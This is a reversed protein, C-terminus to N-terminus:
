GLVKFAFRLMREQHQIGLETDLFSGAHGSEFWEVEIEKGLEKMKKEFVEVPRSPTRTDNKGQIILIPSKINEVYTIPSSKKYVEPKEEPTGGFIAVQFGRLTDASDEYMIIWDTIAVGAMGGAWLDPYKGLAQLTLYGGYSWGTLLIEDPNAIGEKVLWDRAAVMDEVEWNGLDGHIKQEFDRGFTTSGRYNLTVFAFGHDLWSQSAPSFHNAQVSTPGGHTEFITPFPGDGGPTAVWGQIEQGDGSKVTFSKWDRGAPVQGAELITRVLEGTQGDLAVLRSPHAADSLHGFIQGNPAFYPSTMTGSPTNLKILNESEIDYIYFYQVAKRFERVLLRKGDPSWDFIGASGTIGDLPLDKRDGTRPDWIFPKETGTRTSSGVLREDGALPSFHIFTSDISTDEGDWLESIKEGTNTDFAILSFELKNSKETTAIVATDGDYSILPGGSMAKSHYIERPPSVTGDAAIDCIYQTHGEKSAASFGLKTNARNIFFYFSPFPEMDPTIDEPEGGKTSLRVYHGIENGKEDKLFYIYKGDPSLFFTQHGGETDTLQNLENTEVNWSYVQYFGDKNTFVVGKTPDQKSIQSIPIDPARYRQKWPANESSDFPKLM